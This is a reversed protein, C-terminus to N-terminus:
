DRNHRDLRALFHGESAVHERVWNAVSVVDPTFYSGCGFRCTAVYKVRLEYNESNGNDPGTRFTYVTSVVRVDPLNEVPGQLVESM